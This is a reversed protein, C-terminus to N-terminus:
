KEAGRQQAGRAAGPQGFLKTIARERTTGNTAEHRALVNARRDVRCRRELAGPKAGYERREALTHTREALCLRNARM